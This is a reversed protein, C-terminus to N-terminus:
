VSYGHRSLFKSLKREIETVKNKNIKLYKAITFLSIIERDRFRKNEKQFTDWFVSLDNSPYIFSKIILQVSESQTESWELILRLLIFFEVKESTNDEQALNLMEDDSVRDAYHYDINRFNNRMLSNIHNQLATKVYKFGLCTKDKEMELIKLHLEQMLDDIPYGSSLSRTYALKKVLSDYKHM